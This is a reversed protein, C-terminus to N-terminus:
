RQRVEERDHIALVGPRLQLGADPVGDRLVRVGKKRSSVDFLETMGEDPASRHSRGRVRRGGGHNCVEHGVTPTQRPTREVHAADNEHHSGGVGLSPRLRPQPEQFPLHGDLPDHVGHPHHRDM